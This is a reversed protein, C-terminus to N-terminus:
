FEQLSRKTATKIPKREVASHPWAADSSLDTEFAPACAGVEFASAGFGCSEVNTMPFSSTRAMLTQFSGSIERDIGTRDSPFIEKGKTPSTCAAPIVGRLNSCSM